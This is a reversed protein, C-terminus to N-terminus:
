ETYQTGAVQNLFQIAVRRKALKKNSASAKFTAGDLTLSMHHVLTGEPSATSEDKIVVNPFLEYLLCVPHKNEWKQIKFKKKQEDKIELTLDKWEMSDPNLEPIAYGKSAWEAFLKFLAVSCLNRMPFEDDQEPDDM